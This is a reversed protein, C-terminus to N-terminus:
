RRYGGWYGRSCGTLSNGSKGTYKVYEGNVSSFYIIGSSPFSSADALPITTVVDNIDSALTTSIASPPNFKIKSTFAAFAGSASQEGYIHLTENLFLTNTTTYIGAPIFLSRGQTADIADQFSSTADYTSTGARIADHESSPIFDLVNIYDQLKDSITREVAGTGSQVFQSGPRTVFNQSSM